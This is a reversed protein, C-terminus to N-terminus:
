GDSHMSKTADLLDRDVFAAAPHFWVVLQGDVVAALMPSADHWVPLGSVNSALKVMRQQQQGQQQQQGPGGAAAVAKTPSNASSSSSSGGPALPRLMYLDGNADLM